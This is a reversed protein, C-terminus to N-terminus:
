KTYKEKYRKTHCSLETKHLRSSLKGKCFFCRHCNGKRLSGIKVQRTKIHHFAANTKILYHRKTVVYVCRMSKFTGNKNSSHYETFCKYISLNDNNELM